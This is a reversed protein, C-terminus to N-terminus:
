VLDILLKIVLLHSTILGSFPRWYIESFYIIVDTTVSGDKNVLYVGDFCHDNGKIVVM